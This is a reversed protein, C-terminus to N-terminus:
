KMPWAAAEGPSRRNTLPLYRRPPRPLLDGAHRDPACERLQLQCALTVLDEVMGPFGIRFTIRTMRESQSTLELDTSGHLGRRRLLRMTAPLPGSFSVLIMAM